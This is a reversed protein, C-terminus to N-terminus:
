VTTMEGRELRERLKPSRYVSQIVAVIALVASGVIPLTVLYMGLGLAPTREQSNFQQVVLEWGKVGVILFFTVTAAVYLHVTLRQGVRPLKGIVFAIRAHEAHRFGAALGMFTAYIFLIRTVEETWPISAGLGRSVVQLAVTLVMGGVGVLVLADVVKWLPGHPQLRASGLAYHEGTEEIPPGSDPPSTGSPSNNGGDRRGTVQKDRRHGDDFM